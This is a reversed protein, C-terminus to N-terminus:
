SEPTWLRIEKTDYDYDGHRLVRAVRAQTLADEETQGAKKYADVVTKWSLEADLLKKARVEGIGKAGKYGDSTDGVLTLFLHTYQAEREDVRVIGDDAKDPNWHLGPVTRLDKDVTVIIREGGVPHTATMGLLDDAELSPISHAAREAFMWERLPKHLMPRQPGPDAPLEGLLERRGVRWSARHGKYSPLVDHRWNAQTDSLFLSYEDAQLKEMVDDLWRDVQDRARNLDGYYAWTDHDLAHAEQNVHAFRFVVIDADILLRRV